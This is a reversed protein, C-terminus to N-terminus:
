PWKMHEERDVCRCSVASKRLLAPQLIIGEADLDAELLHQLDDLFLYM